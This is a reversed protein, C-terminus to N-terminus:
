IDFDRLEGTLFDISLDDYGTNALEENFRLQKPKLLYKDSGILLDSTVESTLKKHRLMYEHDKKWRQFDSDRMTILSGKRVKLAHNTLKAIYSSVKKFDILNRRIPKLDYSGYRLYPEFEKLKFHRNEMSYNGKFNESDFAVIYHYHERNTTKGFDINGIYDVVFPISNLLRTIKKKRYISNLKLTKDNFTFTVFVLEYDNRKFLYKIHENLKRRQASYANSLQRLALLTDSDFDSNKAIFEDLTLTEGNDNFFCLKSGSFNGNYAFKFYSRQLSNFKAYTGDTLLTKKFDKYKM